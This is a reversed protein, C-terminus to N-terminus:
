RGGPLAWCTRAWPARIVSSSAWNRTSAQAAWPLGRKSGSAWSARSDSTESVFAFLDVVNILLGEFLAELDDEDLLLRRSRQELAFKAETIGAGCAHDVDELAPADDTGALPGLWPFNQDIKGVVESLIGRPTSCEVSEGLGKPSGAPDLM